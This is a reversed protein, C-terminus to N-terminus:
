SHTGSLRDFVEPMGRVMRMQDAILIAAQRQGNDALALLLNKMKDKYDHIPTGAKVMRKLVDAVVAPNQPLLRHLEKM